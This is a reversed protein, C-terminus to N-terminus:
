VAGKAQTMFRKIDRETTIKYNDEDGPIVIVDMGAVIAPQTAGNIQCLGDPELAVNARYYSLFRFLEPAQGAYIRSRNLATKVRVGNEVLYVMDHIPLAPMVGDHGPLAAHCATILSESLFPRAADHILVTDMELVNAQSIIDRMANLISHQRTIGPRSFGRIKDVNLNAQVADTLVAQRWVDEAVIQVCDVFASQLLPALAYTAM